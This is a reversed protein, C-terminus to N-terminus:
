RRRNLDGGSRSQKLIEERVLQKVGDALRSASEEQMGSTQQTSTGDNNIVINISVNSSSGSAIVGLNGSSDRKLPMIAEAGAEAFIASGNAFKTPQNVITNSYDSLVGGKAFATPFATFMSTAGAVQTSSGGSGGLLGGLSGLIGSADLVNGLGAITKQIQIRILGDIVTDVFDGMSMKGTKVFQVLSDEMSRMSGLFTDRTNMSATEAINKYERWGDKIGQLPDRDLEFKVNTAEEKAKFLDNIIAKAKEYEESLAAVDAGERRIQDSYVRGLQTLARQKETRNELHAIGEATLGIMDREIQYREIQATTNDRYSLTVNNILERQGTLQAVRADNQEKEKRISQASDFTIEEQLAQLKEQRTREEQLRKVEDQAVDSRLLNLKDERGLGGGSISGSKGTKSKSEFDEVMKQRVLLGKREEEALEASKEKVARIRAEGVLAQKEGVLKGDRELSVLELKLQNRLKLMGEDHAKLSDAYSKKLGEKTTGFTENLKASFKNIESTGGTVVSEGIKGIDGFNKANPLDTLFKSTKEAEKMQKTEYWESERAISRRAEKYANVVKGLAGSVDALEWAGFLLLGVASGKAVTGVTRALAGISAAASGFAVGSGATAANMAVMSTTAAMADTQITKLIRYGALAFIANDTYRVFDLTYSVLTGLIRGIETLTSIYQKATQVFDPNLTLAGTKEDITGIKDTIDQIFKKLGEFATEDVFLQTVVQKLREWSGTLTKTALQGAESFGGLRQKLEDYITGLERWRKIDSDRVGIATALTSSAAQIGGAVLDRIEQVSQRADLGITKVALTGITAIERIENLTMGGGLGSALVARTTTALAELNLGYKVSDKVLEKTLDSSVKLATPLDISTNNIRGMSMLIGAMGIQMNELTSLFQVGSRLPFTISAIAAGIGFIAGTVEFTMSAIGALWRHVGSRGRPNGTELNNIQSNVKALSATVNEGEKGALKLATRLEKLEAVRQKSQDPTIINYKKFLEDTGGTEAKKREGLMNAEARALQEMRTTLLKIAEADKQHSVTLGKVENQLLRNADLRKKLLELENTAFQKTIRAREKEAEIEQSSGRVRQSTKKQESAEIDALIAKVQRAGEQASEPSIKIRIIHESDAM